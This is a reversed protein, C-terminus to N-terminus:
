RIKIMHDELRANIGSSTNLRDIFATIDEEKYVIGTYVENACEPNGFEIRVDYWRELVKAVERLPQGKFIYRGEKWSIFDSVNVPCIKGQRDAKNFYLQQDPKLTYDGDGTYAAVKGEVLTVVCVDGDPYANINFSTGLVKIEMQDTIVSFPRASDRAVELFIEGSAYIVRKDEGFVVPYKVSSAANVWVKTGDSLVFHYDCQTPTSLEHYELQEKGVAQGTYVLSNSNLNEFEVGELPQFTYQRDTLVVEKGDALKLLPYRGSPIYAVDTQLPTDTNGSMTWWFVASILLPLVMAAYKLTQLLRRRRAKREREKKAILFVQYAKKYSDGSYKIFEETKIASLEEFLIRNAESRGKWEELSIRQSDSLKGLLDATIWGSVEIIEKGDKGM